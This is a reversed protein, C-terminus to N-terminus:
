DERDEYVDAGSFEYYRSWTAGCTPCVFNFTMQWWDWDDRDLYAEEWTLKRKCMPCEDDEYREPNDSANWAYGDRDIERIVVLKM